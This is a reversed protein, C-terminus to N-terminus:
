QIQFQAAFDAVSIICTPIATTLQLLDKDGTILFQAQNAIAAALFIADKPDRCQTPDVPPNPALETQVNLLATWRQLVIEPLSFKPRHLVGIYEALIAPTVIWRFSHDTAIHLVVREPLRDRWAASLLVNTDVLINM